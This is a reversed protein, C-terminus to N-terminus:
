QNAAVLSSFVYLIHLIQDKYIHGACDLPEADVRLAHSVLPCGSGRLSADAREM